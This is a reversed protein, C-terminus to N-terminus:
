SPGDPRHLLEARLRANEQREDDLAVKYFTVLDGLRDARTQERQAALEAETKELEAADKQQQAQQEAAKAMRSQRAALLGAVATITLPVAGIIAVWVAGDM